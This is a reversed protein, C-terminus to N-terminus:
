NNRVQVAYEASISKRKAIQGNRMMWLSCILRRSFHDIMQAIDKPHKHTLFFAQTTNFTSVDQTLAPTAQTTLVAYMGKIPVQVSKVYLIPSTSMQAMVSDAMVMMAAEMGNM